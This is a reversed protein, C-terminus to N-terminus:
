IVELIERHAAIYALARDHDESSLADGLLERRFCFRCYVPCINVVKFLVRDKHRHVIGAVPSHVGDGIPDTREQPLTLLEAETPLFQRANPDAPNKRDIIDAIPQSVAIAYREAVLALAQKATAPVLDANILDDLTHLTM